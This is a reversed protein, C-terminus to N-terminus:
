FDAQVSFKFLRGAIIAQPRLWAEYQNNAVTVTNANWLNYIDLSATTRLRGFRLIKGIRLDLMSARDGYMTGPVVLPLVVNAAGGSLPRGLSPQVIANSAVYNALLEPGPFSQYTAAVLVDARPVTYTGLAKVQTLFATEVRCFQNTTLGTSVSRRDLSFMEYGGAQIEPLKAMIECNDTLTRGSSLGAQVMVGKQLRLNAGVDFGTWHQIQEGYDSAFTTYNDVQGVKNPNLNYLGSLVDGGGGPLLPNLPATVSFPSYDSATTALNDVVTFNGYWRRFYGVNVGVRPLLEQQVSASFESNTLRKGWGKVIAPADSSSAVGQGFLRNAMPGCEGNLLPNVLDCDPIYNRNV